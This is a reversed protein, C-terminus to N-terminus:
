EMMFDLAAMQASTLVDYRPDDLTTLSDFTCKHLSIEIETQLFDHVEKSFAERNEGLCFNGDKIVANGNEDKEAYSEALKVRQNEILKVEEELKKLNKAIAYTLKSPFHGNAVDILSQYCIRAEELTM